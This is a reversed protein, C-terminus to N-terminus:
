GIIEGGNYKELISKSLNIDRIGIVAKNNKGISKSLDEITGYIIIPIKNKNCIKEFKGKTRDSSEESIIVLKVKRKEIAEEVSDAGFSIKGAKMALGILGLIKNNIM